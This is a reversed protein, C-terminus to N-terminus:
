VSAAQRALILCDDLIDDTGGIQAVTMLPKAAVLRLFKIHDATVNGQASLRLGREAVDYTYKGDQLLKEGEIDRELSLAYGTIEAYRLYFWIETLELQVAPSDLATLVSELAHFWNSDDVNDSGRMVLKIVEYGFQLRDYDEIIHSFFRELRASTVVDLDGKGSMLTVDSTAFLEIGGALKSKERRVGRAIASVQGSPTLLKLIRDAEGYNTRRLVIARTRISSAKM